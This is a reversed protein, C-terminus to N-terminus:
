EWGKPRPQKKFEPPRKGSTLIRRFALDPTSGDKLQGALWRKWERYHQSAAWCMDRLKVEPFNTFYLDSLRRREIQRQSESAVVVPKAREALHDKATRYLEPRFQEGSTFLPFIGLLSEITDNELQRIWQPHYNPLSSYYALQVDLLAVLCTRLVRSAEEPNVWGRVSNSCRSIAARAADQIDQVRVLAKLSLPPIPPPSPKKRM